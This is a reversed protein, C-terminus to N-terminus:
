RVETIEPGREPLALGDPQEAEDAAQQLAEQAVEPLRLPLPDRVAMPDAGREVIIQRFATDFPEGAVVDRAAPGHVLGRLFWRPGDVGVFRAEQPVVGSETQMPVVAHLEAGLPGQVESASGGGEGLSAAIETRVDLWIGETRPAAFAMIQMRSEGLVLNAAFPAGEPSMEIQIEGAELVPVKISGLDLRPVGDDTADALDWPGEPRVVVRAQREAERAALEATVVEDQEVAPELEELEEDSRDKRKRFM